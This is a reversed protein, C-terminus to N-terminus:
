SARPPAARGAATFGSREPAAGRDGAAGHRPRGRWRRILSLWVVWGGALFLAAPAMGRWILGAAQRAVWDWVDDACDRPRSTASGCHRFGPDGMLEEMTAIRPPGNEQGPGPDARNSSVAPQQTFWRRLVDRLARHGRENPHLSNHFWNRPNVNADFGGEVPNAGIFNVGVEVARRDCIRLQEQELATTMAGLYYLGAESAADALVRDLQAVFGNIFRHESPTLLSWDCGQANLPVPYPVVLVPTGKGVHDRIRQYTRDLDFRVQQLNQLWRDGIQSCDGPGICARGIEGFLAENGGVSVVILKVDFSGGQRLWDLHDLQDLGRERTGDPLTRVPGGIPEGPHQAREYIHVGKAGSCALFALDDPIADHDNNGEAVILAAYATPARRCENEDKHNTGNYFRAAGEGSMYSDGLAVVVSEGAEPVVAETPSAGRPLSAWVVALGAVVILVDAPTNAVIAGLFLFLLLGGIVALPLDLGALRALWWAGAMTAVGGAVPLQRRFWGSRDRLRILGESLLSLGIPFVMVGLGMALLTWLSLGRSLGALGALFVAMCLGTTVLGPKLPRSGDSRWLILLQGFGLFVLCIGIFEAGETRGWLFRSAALGAGGVVMTIPVVLRLLLERRTPPHNRLWYNWWITSAGLLFAAAAVVLFPWRRAAIVALLVFSILM